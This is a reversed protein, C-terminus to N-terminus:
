YRRGWRRRSGGYGGGGGYQYTDRSTSLGQEAALNIYGEEGGGGGGAGGGSCGGGGMASSAAAIGDVWPARCLCCTAEERARMKQDVWRKICDVHINGRCGGKCYTALGGEVEEQTILEFCTPCDSYRRDLSWRPTTMSVCAAEAM